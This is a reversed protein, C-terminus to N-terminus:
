DAHSALARRLALWRDPARRAEVCLWMHRGRGAADVRVTLLGRSRGMWMCRVGALSQGQPSVLGGWWWGSAVSQMRESSDVAELLPDWTLWGCPLQWWVWAAGGLTLVWMASAIWWRSFVWAGTPWWAFWAGAQLVVAVGAMALWCVGWFACRGVPFSVSPANHM